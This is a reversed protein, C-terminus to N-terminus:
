AAAALRFKEVRNRGLQKAQYMARDARTILADLTQGDGPFSAIGISVSCAVRRGEVDLPAGAVADRIREAVEIAGKEPTEPLLVVFEDGGYRVITDEARLLQRLRAALDRLVANGAEHGWRDNVEKLGNVDLVLMSVPRRARALAPASRRMWEAFFRYNYAQTLEDRILHKQLDQLRHFGSLLYPVPLSSAVALVVGLNGYARALLLAVLPAMSYYAWAAPPSECTLVAWLLATWPRSDRPRRGLGVLLANVAHYAAVGALAPGWVEAWSDRWPLRQAAHYTRAGALMCLTLQGVAYLYASWSLQGRAARFGLGAALAPLVLAEARFAAALPFLTLLAGSLRHGGPLPVHLFTGGVGVLGAALLLEPWRSWPFPASQYLGAAWGAAAM